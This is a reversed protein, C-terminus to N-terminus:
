RSSPNSDYSRRAVYTVRSVILRGESWIDCSAENDRRRAIVVTRLPLPTYRNEATVFWGGSVTELRRYWLPFFEGHNPPLHQAISVPPSPFVAVNAPANDVTAAGINQQKGLENFLEVIADEVGQEILRQFRQTENGSEALDNISSIVAATVAARIQEDSIAGLENGGRVVANRVGHRVAAPWDVADFRQSLANLEVPRPAGQLEIPSSSPLGAQNLRSRIEFEIWRERASETQGLAPAAWQALAVLLAFLPFTSGARLYAPM